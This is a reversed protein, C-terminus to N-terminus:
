FRDCVSGRRHLFASFCSLCLFSWVSLRSSSPRTLPWADAQCLGPDLLADRLTSGPIYDVIASEPPNRDFYILDIVCLFSLFFGSLARNSMHSFAYSRVLRTDSTM